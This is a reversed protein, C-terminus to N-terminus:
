RLGPFHGRPIFVGYGADSINDKENRRREEEKM